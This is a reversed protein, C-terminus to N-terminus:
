AALAAAVPPPRWHECEDTPRFPLAPFPLIHESVAYTGGM